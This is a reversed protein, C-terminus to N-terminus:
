ATKNTGGMGGDAHASNNAVANTLLEIDGYVRLEPEHYPKKEKAPQNSIM